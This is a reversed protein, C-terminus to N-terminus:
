APTRASAPVWRPAPSRLTLTLRYGGRRLGERSPLSPLLLERALWCHRWQAVVRQERAWGENNNNHHHNRAASSLSALGLGPGLVRLPRRQLALRHALRQVQPDVEDEPVLLDRRQWRQGRCRRRWWQARGVRVRVRVRVM